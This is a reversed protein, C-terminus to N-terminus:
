PTEIESLPIPSQSSSSASSCISSDPSSTPDVQAQAPHVVVDQTLLLPGDKTARWTVRREEDKETGLLAAPIKLYAEFEKWEGETVDAHLQKPDLRNATLVPMLAM